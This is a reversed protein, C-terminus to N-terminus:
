MPRICVTTCGRRCGSIMMVPLVRRRASGVKLTNVNEPYHITLNTSVESLIKDDSCSALLVLVGLAFTYIINKM